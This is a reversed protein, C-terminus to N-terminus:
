FVAYSIRMLSQLESTHEESRVWRKGSPRKKNKSECGSLKWLAILKTVDLPYFFNATKRHSQACFPAKQLLSKSPLQGTQKSALNIAAEVAILSRMSRRARDAAHCSQCCATSCRTVISYTTSSRGSCM